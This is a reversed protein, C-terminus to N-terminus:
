LNHLHSTNILNNNEEFKYTTYTYRKSQNTIQKFNYITYTCRVSQLELVQLNYTTYTYRKSLNKIQKFIISQTPTVNQNM